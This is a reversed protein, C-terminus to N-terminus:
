SSRAPGPSPTLLAIIKVALRGFRYITIDRTPVPSHLLGLAILGAVWEAEPSGPEAALLEKSKDSRSGVSGIAVGEYEFATTLFRAEEASLDRVIRGIVVADSLPLEPQRLANEIVSQLYRIKEGQTTQMAAIVMDNVIQYQSDTMQEILDAHALLTENIKALAADMRRQQRMAAPAKALLPLLALYAVAPNSALAASAAGALTAATVVVETLPSGSVRELAGPEKDM